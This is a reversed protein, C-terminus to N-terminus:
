LQRNVIANNPALPEEAAWFLDLIPWGGVWDYNTL